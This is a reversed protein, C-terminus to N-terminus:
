RDVMVCILTTWSQPVAGLPSGSEPDWLEAFGSGLAGAAMSRVLGRATGLARGRTAAVWLLYTLQPWAPGRWYRTPEYAPEGAHVGRPGYPAAYAAPDDLEAFAEPRPAVLLPLLADITDPDFAFPLRNRAVEEPSGQFMGCDVLVRRKGATVLFQSGTVCGAAGLFQISVSV